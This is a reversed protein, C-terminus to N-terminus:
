IIPRSFKFLWNYNLFMFDEQRGFFLQRISHNCLKKFFLFCTFNVNLVCVCALDKLHKKYLVSLSIELFQSLTTM